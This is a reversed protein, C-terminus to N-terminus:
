FRFTLDKRRNEKGKMSHQKPHPFLMWYLGAPSQGFWRQYMNRENRSHKSVRSKSIEDYKCNEAESFPM